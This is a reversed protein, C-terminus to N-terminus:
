QKAYKTVSRVTVEAAYVNGEADVTVGEGAAGAPSDTEHGPIFLTVQGDRASGIRVGKRWGPHNRESSESDIAYLTDNEDIYMDSVRSFQWLEELFNGDQDFVQIRHNSRDAVFLRGRSDMELAHATRFEGPESGSRGWSTIFTGNRDFKSIRAVAEGPDDSNQGGHGEAVFIDGNPATVVDTPETLAEPPNGAVGATGLTLLVTGEPSFKVVRHGKDAEGPFEALQEPSPVRADTVWVNGDSDVHIGHPWAFMGAGFSSVVNGSPDFKLVAPQDSGVCTDSTWAPGPKPGCREAVWLSRGDRDIEVAGTAGWLRGEPMQAWDRITRYPNPRDDNIPTITQLDSQTYATGGALVLAALIALPVIGLRSELRHTDLM